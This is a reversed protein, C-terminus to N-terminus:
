LLLGYTDSSMLGTANSILICCTILEQNSHFTDTHLTSYMWLSTESNALAYMCHM